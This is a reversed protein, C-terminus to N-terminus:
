STLIDHLSIFYIFFADFHFSVFKNAYHSYKYSIWSIIFDVVQKRAKQIMYMLIHMFMKDTRIQKCFFNFYYVCCIKSVLIFLYSICKGIFGLQCFDLVFWPEKRSIKEFAFRKMETVYSPKALIDDELQVYFTGSFFLFSLIM